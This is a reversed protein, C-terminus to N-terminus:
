GREVHLWVQIFATDKVDSYFSRKKEAIDDQIGSNFKSIAITCVRSSLNYRRLIGYLWGTFARFPQHGITQVVRKKNTASSRAHM